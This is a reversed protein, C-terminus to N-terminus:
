VGLTDPFNLRAFEGFAVRAAEDYALAAEEELDFYGLAIFRHRGDPNVEGARIQSQWRGTRKYYSVGKYKSSRNPQKRQNRSNETHNALRLNSRQNNLGDGDRHDVLQDDNAGLIQRHMQIMLQHSGVYVGRKAYFGKSDNGATTWIWQSLWDFDSDDVITSLGKTLQIVKSM